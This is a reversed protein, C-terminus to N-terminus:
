RCKHHVTLNYKTAIKILNFEHYTTWVYRDQFFNQFEEAYKSFAIDAYIFQFNKQRWEVFAPIVITTGFVALAQVCVMASPVSSSIRSMTTASDGGLKPM